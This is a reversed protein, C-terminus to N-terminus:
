DDSRRKIEANISHLVDNFFQKDYRDISVIKKGRNAYKIKTLRGRCSSKFDLLQDKTMWHLSTKELNSIVKCVEVM